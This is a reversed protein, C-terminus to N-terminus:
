SSDIQVIGMIYIGTPNTAWTPTTFKVAIQDGATVLTNESTLANSALTTDWTQTASAIDTTDNIRTYIDITESTGNAGGSQRKYYYVKKITGTIPVIQQHTDYATTMSNPRGVYYTTADAPNLASSNFFYMLYRDTGGTQATWIPNATSGQTALVNGSTGAALRVNDTGNFYIIDGQTTTPALADFAATAGTQGTGGSAIVLPVTIGSPADQWKPNASAGQTTLLQGSTGVALRVNDTGDYYIIDGQTTTPALADFAATATTQGTGGSGIALPTTVYLPATTQGTGGSAAALPVTLVTGGSSGITTNGTGGSAIALPVTLVTGGASLAAETKLAAKQVGSYNPMELSDGTPEGVIATRVPIFQKFIDPKRGSGEGGM